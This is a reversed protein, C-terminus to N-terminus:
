GMAGGEGCRPVSVSILSLYEPTIYICQPSIFVGPSIKEQWTYAPDECAVRGGMSDLLPVVPLSPIIGLFTEGPFDDPNPLSLGGQSRM